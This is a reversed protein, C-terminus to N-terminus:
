KPEKLHLTELTFEAGAVFGEKYDSGFYDLTYTLMELERTIQRRWCLRFLWLSFAKM